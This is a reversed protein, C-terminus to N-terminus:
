RGGRKHSRTTILLTLLGILLLALPSPAEGSVNCCGDSAGADPPATAGGDRSQGTGDAHPPAGDTAAGSGDGIATAGDAPSGGDPSGTSGDPGPTAGGDPCSGCIGGCTDDAGCPKGFCYPTCAKGPKGGLLTKVLGLALAAGTCFEGTATPWELFQTYHPAALCGPTNAPLPFGKKPKCALGLTFKPLEEWIYYYCPGMMLGGAVLHRTDFGRGALLPATLTTAKKGRDTMQVLDAYKDNSGPDTGMDYWLYYGANEDVYLPFGVGQGDVGGAIDAILQYPPAVFTLALGLPMKDEHILGDGRVRWVLGGIYFALRERERDTLAPYPLDVRKRGQAEVAKRDLTAQALGAQYLKDLDQEVFALEGLLTGVTKILAALAAPEYCSQQAQLDARAKSYTARRQGLEAKLKGYRVKALITRAQPWFSAPVLNTPYRVHTLAEGLIAILVDLDSTTTPLILGLPTHDYVYSEPFEVHGCTKINAPSLAALAAQEHGGCSFPAGARLLGTPASFAFHEVCRKPTRTLPPADGPGSNKAELLVDIVDQYFYLKTKNSTLEVIGQPPLGPLGAKLTNLHKNVYAPDKSSNPDFDFLWPTPAAAAPRAWTVILLALALPRM